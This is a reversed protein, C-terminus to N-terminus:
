SSARVQDSPDATPDSTPSGRPSAASPLARGSSSPQPQTAVVVPGATRRGVLVGLAVAVAVLVVVAASGALAIALVPVRPTPLRARVTPPAPPETIREPEQEPALQIETPLATSATEIRPADSTADSRPPPPPVVRSTAPAPIVAPPAPPLSGRNAAVAIPEGLDPSSTRGPASAIPDPVRSRLSSQSGPSSDRSPPLAIEQSTPKRLMADRTRRQERFTQAMWAGVQAHGAPEGLQFLCRDLADALAAASAPRKSAARELVTAVLTSLYTPCDKRVDALKPIPDQLIALVMSGESDSTFLRRGAVAEWLVVGLAWVDTRRDVQGRRLQEPAMYALKGKLEGSKTTTVRNTARAVGFDVVKAAGEYQVFVNQPSVDRHVLGMPAGSEDALEHAAHLGRAADAVVRVAIWWPLGPADSEDWAAHLVSAFPEGHLYEMVLFPTGDQEGFDLVTCVHTHQIRAAIRAEDLFMDVVRRDSALHPHMIKVAVWKGFGHPGDLQALWVEGMGGSAVKWRLRYRGLWRDRLADSVEAAVM